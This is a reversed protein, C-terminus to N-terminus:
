PNRCKGFCIGSFAASQCNECIQMIRERGNPQCKKYGCINEPYNVIKIPYEKKGDNKKRERKPFNNISVSQNASLNLSKCKCRSGALLVQLCNFVAPRHSAAAPVLTHYILRALQYIHNYVTLWDLLIRVIFTEGPPFSDRLSQLPVRIILNTHNCGFPCGYRKARM